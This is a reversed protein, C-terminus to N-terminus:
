KLAHLYLYGESSKRSLDILKAAYEPYRSSINGISRAGEFKLDHNQNNIFFKQIQDITSLDGVYGLAGM